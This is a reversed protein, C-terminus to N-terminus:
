WHYIQMLDELSLMHQQIDSFPVLVVRPRGGLFLLHLVIGPLFHYEFRFPVFNSEVMYWGQSSRGIGNRDTGALRCKAIAITTQGSTSELAEVVPRPRGLSTAIHRSRAGVDDSAPDNNHQRRQKAVKPDASKARPHLKNSV